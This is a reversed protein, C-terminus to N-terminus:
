CVLEERTIGLSNNTRRTQDSTNFFIDELWGRYSFLVNVAFSMSIEANQQEIERSDLYGKPSKGYDIPISSLTNMSDPTVSHALVNRLRLFKLLMKSAPQDIFGYYTYNRIVNSKNMKPSFIETNDKRSYILFQELKVENEVFQNFCTTLM